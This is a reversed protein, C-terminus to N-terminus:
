ATPANLTTPTPPEKPPQKTRTDFCTQKHQSISSWLLNNNQYFYICIITIGIFAVITFSLPIKDRFLKFKKQENIWDIQHQWFFKYHAYWDSFTIQKSISVNYYENEIASLQQIYKILDAEDTSHVTCYLNRLCNFQQTLKKGAEKYAKSDYFSIYLAVIGVIIFTASLFKTSLNDFILAYIGFATSIFSIWGPAKEVIDYTAFHKKAGFGVNYGTTAINKLLSNKDM